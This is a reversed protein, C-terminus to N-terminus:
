YHFRKHRKNYTCKLSPYHKKIENEICDMVPKPDTPGCTFIDIALWGRDSYCHSTCHSTDLLLVSTFGPPSTPTDGLICLKKHVITMDTNNIADEMIKFITEALLTHNIPHKSVDWIFDGFVHNGHHKRCFLNSKILKKYFSLLGKIM